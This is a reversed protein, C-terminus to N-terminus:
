RFISLYNLIGAFVVWLLYPVLMWSATKNIKWTLKIMGLISFFLLILDFFAFLPNRLGFYFFSWLFNLLFNIGFIIEVRYCIEKNKITTLSLYLSIFILFFLINWVIMFVWNPPTIAPKTIFYWFSNAGRIAFLSGLVATAYVAVFSLFLNGFHIKKFRKKLGKKM